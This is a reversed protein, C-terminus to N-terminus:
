EGVDIIQKKMPSDSIALRTIRGVAIATPSAIAKLM